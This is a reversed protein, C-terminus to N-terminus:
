WIYFDLYMQGYTDANTALISTELWNPLQYDSIFNPNVWFTYYFHDDTGGEKHALEHLFMSGRRPASFSHWMTCLHIDSDSSHVYAATNSDCANFPDLVSECEIPLVEFNKFPRWIDGMTDRIVIKWFNGIVGNPGAFWKMFPVGVLWSWGGPYGNLEFSLWTSAGRDGRGAGNMAACLGQEISAKKNASCDERDWYVPRAFTGGCSVKDTYMGTPDVLTQPNNGVYSYGNGLNVSDGWIGLPDRSIFRGTVPDYHRAKAYYFDNEADHRYGTFLYQNGLVSPSGTPNANVDLFIPKGYDEYDYREVPNGAADTVLRTSGLDDCFFFFKKGLTICEVVDDFPGRVYEATVMDMDDREEVVDDGVYYFRKESSGFDKVTTRGFADYCYKTTEVDTRYHQVLQNRYDWVMNDTGNRVTENGNSDYEICGICPTSTYQNMQYDAPAPLTSDMSYSGPCSDDVVSVRNGVDDFNYVTQRETSGARTVEVEVLRYQSDYVFDHVVDPGGGRVDSARTKNYQTDWEYERNDLATIGAAHDIKTIRRVEDFEYDSTAVSSGVTRRKIRHPGVYEYSATPGSNTIAKVRNLEDHTRRVLKRSPYLCSLQNGMGDYTYTFTKGNQIEQLLNGLSDYHRTVLSDDDQASILRSLGDHKYVEFTTDSSVGPGAVITRGSIRDLDDYTSTVVTGNADVRMVENDHVNHSWSESTGDEYSKGIQRNLADYTYHTSNQNDDTLKILRSNDDWEWERVIQGIPTEGGIGDITMIRTSCILRRLGDHVMQTENGISDVICCLDDQSNYGFKNSQNLTDLEEVQRNLEDYVKTTRFMETPSGTDSIETEVVEVVNSNGDYSTMVSNGMADVRQSERYVTDYFYQTVGFNDDTRTAIMSTDTYTTLIQNSGDGVPMQTAPDFHQINTQIRRDMADYVHTVEALKVNTTGGALDCIEGEIWSRVVNGNPDYVYYYVNGMPDVKSLARNYADFVFLNILAGGELGRHTQVVNRNGDYNLQTTSANVGGAGRTTRYLLDREDYLKAEVNDTQNGNFAEGERALTLQRNADYEFENVVNHTPSVERIERTLKNLIDYEFMASYHSNTGMAGNCDVNLKDVQVVNDNADFYTDEVYHVPIILSVLPSTQRVVQNLENVIYTTTELRPDTTQIVNGVADYDFGTSLAETAVDVIRRQLYGQRHGSTGDYYVWSDMRRYGSGNDPHTYTLTQGFSNYTFDEVISPIRHITQLRNGNADYSHFTDNGRADTHRTVFNSGCCGFGMDYEFYESLSNQDGVPSHVGPFRHVERLNGRTRWEALPDLELEYVRRTINGNSHFSKIPRSDEDYVWRTEFFAPDSPRLPAGPRNVTQTTPQDPNARGTLERLLTCRGRSDYVYERVNGVRDNVIAKVAPLLAGPAGMQNPNGLHYTIHLVDGPDGRRQRILRDPWQSLPGGFTNRLFVQGLPDRITLLNHNFQDDAFGTSYTYTTIKGAPFDNGTPTGVVTPSRVSKLDGANGGMEAAQYYSYVVQRGTWDTLSAIRGSADRAIMIERGLTDIVIGLLGNSDYVFEMTNGNRDVIFHIKGESPSGDLPFFEWFGLDGYILKFSGDPNFCGERCYEVKVYTDDGQKKYVDCRGNGDWIRIDQSGAPEIRLNYSHDWGYGVEGPEGLRSRYRRQWVFDMGRGPIALDVEDWHFEGSHLYVNPISVVKGCAGSGPTAMPRAPPAEFTAPFSFSGAIASTALTALSVALRASALLIPRVTM